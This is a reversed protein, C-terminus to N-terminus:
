AESVHERWDAVLELMKPGLDAWTINGEQAKKQLARVKIWRARHESWVALGGSYRGLAKRRRNLRKSGTGAMAENYPTMDNKSNKAFKKM